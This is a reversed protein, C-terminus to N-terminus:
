PSASRSVLLELMEVLLGPAVPKGLYPAKKLERPLSEASHGTLIAYPVGRAELHGAVRVSSGDILSVDLLAAHPQERSLLDIATKGTLAPGIPVGAEREVCTRLLEGVVFEDEVILIRKGQLRRKM